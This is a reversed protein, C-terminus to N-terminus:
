RTMELSIFVNVDKGVVGMSYFKGSGVHYELRDLTFSTEFGAVRQNEAMPNDKEGLFVFELKMPKTVDKITMTGELAYTNDHLHTVGTSNFRMVPFRASDFFDATKLHADRKDIHTTISDVNVTFNFRSAELNDPEFVVDATMDLFQGSIRSYIHQINFGVVSHAPDLVWQGASASFPTLAMLVVISMVMRKM